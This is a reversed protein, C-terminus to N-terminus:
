SVVREIYRARRAPSLALIQAESWGYAQALVHVEDLCREAWHALSDFLYSAIDFGETWAHACSPCQLALETDAQPDAERLAQGLQAVVVDPLEPATVALGSHTAELLCRQVLLARAEDLDGAQAAAALDISAPLRSCLHFGDCDLTVAAEPLAAEPVRLDDVRLNLELRESCHPCQAVADLQPGFLARQLELLQADRRGLPMFRAASHSAGLVEDLLACGRLAAPMARSRDLADLWDASNLASTM